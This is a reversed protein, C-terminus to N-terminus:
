ERVHSLLEGLRESLDELALLTEQSDESQNEKLRNLDAFPLKSIRSALATTLSYLSTQDLTDSSDETSNKESKKADVLKIANEISGIGGEVFKTKAEEDSLVKPLQRVNRLLRINGDRIWDGFDQLKFGAEFIADKIGSKQLEVFGSFRDIHFATDDVRDRYYRNMDEYADIQNQIGAKNGGCLVVMEGFEMFEQNYLYHLYRAKEYAPWERPGVLHASVRISEIEKQSADHIVLAPINSWNGETGNDLYDKYIALRTNGDICVPVGDKMVVSIPQTIGNNARISDKLKNFSAVAGSEDSATRLAFSIRESNINDGYKELAKKIRPNEFDFQTDQVNLLQYPSTM